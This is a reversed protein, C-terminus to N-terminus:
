PHLFGKALSVGRPSGAAIPRAVWIAESLAAKDELFRPAAFTPVEMEVVVGPYGVARAIRM